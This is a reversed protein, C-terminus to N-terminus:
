RDQRFSHQNRPLRSFAFPQALYTTLEQAKYHVNSYFLARANGFITLNPLFTVPEAYLRLHVFYVYHVAPTVM